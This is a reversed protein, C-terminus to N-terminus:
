WPMNRDGLAVFRQGEVLNACREDERDRDGDPHGDAECEASIGDPNALPDSGTPTPSRRIVVHPSLPSGSRRAGVTM